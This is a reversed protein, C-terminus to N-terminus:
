VSKTNKELKRFESAFLPDSEVMNRVANCNNIVTSYNRGFLRGIESLSLTTNNKIILMSVNRAIRINKDRKEGIIDESTVGYHDAVASIVKKAYVQPSDKDKLFEPVLAKIADITPAEGTLYYRASIKKIVGEIQRISSGLREALFMEVEPELRIGTNLAKRRLIALRLDYDPSKVDALLGSEFRTIIRTELIQMEKPPKDSSVIIQRHAEFLSNFTHFFEEQTSDRGVIFHVDDILLMDVSRYKERFARGGYKRSLCEILQNAFEEGKVFVINMDPYLEMSRNAIAYMLHTKGVGSPGYLFLPNYEVAPNEAVNKSAAYAFNNSGGVVFNDFTYDPNFTLKEKGTSTTSQYKPLNEEDEAETKDFIDDISPISLDSLDGKATNASSSNNVSYFEEKDSKESVAPAYGSPDHIIEVEDPTYGVVATLNNKLTDFYRNIITKYKFESAVAFVAKESSLERLSVESFWLGFAEDSLEGSEKISERILKWITDFETKPIDNM